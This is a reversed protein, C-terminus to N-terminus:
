FANKKFLGYQEINDTESKAIQETNTKAYAEISTGNMMKMM